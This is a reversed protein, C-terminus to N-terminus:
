RGSSIDESVHDCSSTSVKRPVKILEREGIEGGGFVCTMTLMYIDRPTAFTRHARKELLIFDRTEQHLVAWIYYATQESPLKMSVEWQGETVQSAVTPKQTDWKGLNKDQVVLLVALVHKESEVTYGIRFRVDTYPVANESKKSM